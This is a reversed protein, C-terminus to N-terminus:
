TLIASLVPRADETSQVPFDYQEWRRTNGPENGLGRVDKRDITCVLVNQLCLVREWSGLDHVWSDMEVDDLVFESTLHEGDRRLHTILHLRGDAVDKSIIRVAPSIDLQKIGYYLNNGPRTITYKHAQRETLGQGERALTIGLIHIM